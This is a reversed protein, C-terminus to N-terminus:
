PRQASEVRIVSGPASRDPDALIGLWGGNAPSWATYRVEGPQGTPTPHFMEIRGGKYYIVRMRPNKDGGGDASRAVLEIKSFLGSLRIWIEGGPALQCAGSELWSSRVFVPSGALAGPTVNHRYVEDPGSLPTAGAQLLPPRESTEISDWLSLARWGAVVRGAMSEPVSVTLLLPLGSCDLRDTAVTLEDANDPIVLDKQWRLYRETGAKAYARFSIPAESGGASGIRRLVAEAAARNSPVAIEVEGTGGSTGLLGRGDPLLQLTLSSLLLSSDVNGGIGPNFELPRAWVTQTPLKGYVFFLSGVSEKTFRRLFEEEIRDSWHDWAVMVLIHRYNDSELVERKLLSTEKEGDFAAAVLPLGSVKRVPWVHELWEMGPGYFLRNRDEEPLGQRWKALEHLSSTLNPPLRLGHLYGFDAGSREGREYHARPATAHGFQSRQGQWASEWGFGGLLLAPLLVGLGFGLSRTEVGFGLWLSVTMVLSAAFTVYAIENNTLLLATAGAAVLGGAAVVWLRHWIAAMGMRSRWAAVVAVLPMLLGILGIQPLRIRGYYDHLTSLYLQPSTLLAIRGGRASLPLQVVNYYWTRWDAGTWAIEVGIPLLFGWLAIFLLTGAAQKFSARRERWGFLVWGIALSCAILHFNIKNLGGLFLGGAAIVHWGLDQRRLLPAIAFSWAVAALALVGIPNYFIITHQSASGIVVAAAIVVALIVPLRRALMLSLAGMGALILGAAGYTMGVYTGGGVREAVYDLLFTGTQAPTTFDVYPRQGQALRANVNIFLGYDYFDRLYDHNRWWPLLAVVCLIACLSALLVRSSFSSPSSSM